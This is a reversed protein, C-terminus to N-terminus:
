APPTTSRTTKEPPRLSTRLAARRRTVLVVMYVLDLVAVMVALVQVFDNGAYRLFVFVSVMGTGLGKSWAVTPSQLLPNAITIGIWLYIASEAVNLTYASISGLPLDYGGGRMGAYFAAWGAILAFVLWNFARRAAENNTQLAGYRFVNWLIFCDLLFAGQYVLQLGWGMDVKYLFGWMFEWTVNGVAALVPIELRRQRCAIVIVAVYAPVWMLFGGIYWFVQWGSYRTFDVFPGSFDIM